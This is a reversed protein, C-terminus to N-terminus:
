QSELSRRSTVCPLPVTTRVLVKKEKEKQLRSCVGCGYSYIIHRGDTRRFVLDRLDRFCSNCLQSVYDRWSRAVTVQLRSAGFHLRWHLWRMRNGCTVRPPASLLARAPASVVASVGDRASWILRATPASRAFSPRCAPSRDIWLHPLRWLIWAALAHWWLSLSDFPM